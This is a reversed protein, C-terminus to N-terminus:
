QSLEKLQEFEEYLDLLEAEEQELEKTVSKFEINKENDMEDFNFSKIITELKSIVKEKDSIDQNISKLREKEKNTMKKNFTTADAQDAAKEANKPRYEKIIEEEMSLADLYNKVQSYGAEFIEFKNTNMYWVKNTVNELFYRDHSIIIVSGKFNALKDELIQLTEIDLDNTPEDFIWIDGFRKLNLALQIRNKEGGSFTHIPRHIEDKNFLFDKFYAIVNKTKGDSLTVSDTGEGLLEFPTQDPNLEERKQSFNQIILDPFCRREGLAIEINGSLVNTLTSKGIGNPGVIGIKDGRYVTLSLDKIILNTNYGFSINELEILKKNKKKTVNINLKIERKALDKLDEVKKQLKFYEEVRKKSRTRRAKIGQRMWSTERGMTNQLKALQQKRALDQEALFELYQTYKGNYTVLKEHQIHSIKNTIKSLLFRDHSIILFTKNTAELENEFLQITEIDLHNTPEDWLIINRPTSLGLSLLVKKQEGGSLLRVKQDIEYINFLKLYSEYRQITAWWNFHDLTELLNKQLDVLNEIEDNKNSKSLSINTKELKTVINKIEPYFYYIFDKISVEDDNKLPIEQPVLFTSFSTNSDNANSAKDFLFPPTSIDPRLDNNIIKFLSSKGKGNLGILGIKDGQHIILEADKFLSKNGFNLHINKLTCLIPM